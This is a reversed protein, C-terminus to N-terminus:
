ATMQAEGAHRAQRAPRGGIFDAMEQSMLHGSEEANILTQIADELAPCQAREQQWPYGSFGAMLHEVGAIREMMEGQEVGLLFTFSWARQADIHFLVAGNNNDCEDLALESVDDYESLGQVEGTLQNVGYTAVIGAAAESAMWYRSTKSEEAAELFRVVQATRIIMHPGWVWQYHRGARVPGREGSRLSQDIQAFMQSRQGM